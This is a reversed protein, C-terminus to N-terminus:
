SYLKSDDLRDADINQKFREWAAARVLSEEDSMAERRAIRAQLFEVAQPKALDALSYQTPTFIKRDNFYQDIMLSLRSKKNRRDM